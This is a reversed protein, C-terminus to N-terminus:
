PNTTTTASPGSNGPSAVLVAGGIVVGLGIVWLPWASGAQAEKVGAPKGAAPLAGQASSTEGYAISSSLLAVSMCVLAAKRVM